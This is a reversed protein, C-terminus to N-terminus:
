RAEGGHANKWSGAYHHTVLASPLQEMEEPTYFNSSAGFSHGPLVLVNELVTPQLIEAVEAQEVTRNLTRELSKFIGRTLRRPGSFDVVDGTMDLTINEYSVNHKRMTEQIADLVDDVVQLMHPSGPKAMITWSAFQRLIPHKWGWDFEWGVVIEANAKFQSPIWEDIGVNECSVDLDSWIGGQDFLLLYRLLDAKLIPVTLGLYTEVIDPRAAFAREVYEDAERDTIFKAQHDPNSNICSDTWTKADTTLGNPGLKYWLIKPIIDAHPSSPSFLSHAGAGISAWFYYFLAASSLIFLAYLSSSKLSCSHGSYLM